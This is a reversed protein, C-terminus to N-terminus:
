EIQGDGTDGFAPLVNSLSEIHLTLGEIADRADRWAQKDLDPFYSGESLVWDVFEPIDEGSNFISNLRAQQYCVVTLLDDRQNGLDSLQVDTKMNFSDYREANYIARRLFASRSGKKKTNLYQHMQPTISVSVIYNRGNPVGMVVVGDVAESINHRRADATVAM